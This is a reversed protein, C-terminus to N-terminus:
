ARGRVISVLERMKEPDKVGNTEAGSCLDVAYPNLTAVADAINSTNLGGALFYPRSINKALSWDFSKGTSGEGNDLLIYDSEARVIREVDETTSIGAAKIILRNTYTRLAAIYMDTEKGHLQVMEITGKKLLRVVQEIPADVFVGVPIIDPSLMRRLAAAKNEDVNRSSWDVFIFGIYDPKAENCAIIDEERFMGCIKIKSM